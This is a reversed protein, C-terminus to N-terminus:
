ISLREHSVRYGDENEAAVNAPDGCRAREPLTQWCCVTDYQNIPLAIM